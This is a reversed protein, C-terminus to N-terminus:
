FYQQTRDHVTIDVLQFTERHTKLRHRRQRANHPLRSKAPRTPGVQNWRTLVETLGYQHAGQPTLMFKACHRPNVLHAHKTDELVLESHAIKSGPEAFRGRM